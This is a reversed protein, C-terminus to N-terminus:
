AAKIDLLKLQMSWLTRLDDLKEQSLINNLQAHNQKLWKGFAHLKEPSEFSTIQNALSEFTTDEWSTNCEFTSLEEQPKKSIKDLIFDLNAPEIPKLMGSRDKSPYGLANMASCFFVPKVGDKGKMPMMCIVEDVIGPLEAATKSGECQMSWYQNNDEDMKQELVGVMIIDRNSIHQLHTIWGLMERGLLGYAARVDLKGNRLVEAQSQCWQFCLRSAVTISDIFVCEYKSLMDQDAYEKCLRDYHHQSYPQNNRLAPNPGGLLCAIDRAEDWTKIEVSDGEWDQVALMGAELDLCLTPKTLTRLLSTKGIGPPGFIAMKVPFKKSLREAANTINLRNKINSM